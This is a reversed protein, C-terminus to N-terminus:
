RMHNKLEDVLEGLGENDLKTFSRLSSLPMYYVMSREMEDMEKMSTKGIFEGIYPMLREEVYDATKTCDMLDGIMVNEDIKPLKEKENELVVETRMVIDRSSKGICIEYTGGAAYWDKQETDYWAFARYELEMSVTKTEGPKLTVATFNKLERVPRIAAQTKDSVYLQVIEKGEMSGTNTVDLSVM